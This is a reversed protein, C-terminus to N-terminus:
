WQEAWGYRDGLKCTRIVANHMQRYVFIERDGVIKYLEAQLDFMRLSLNV